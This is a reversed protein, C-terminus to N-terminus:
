FIFHLNCAFNQILTILELRKNELDIDQNLILFTSKSIILLIPYVRCIQFDLLKFIIHCNIDM